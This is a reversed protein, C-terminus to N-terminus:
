KLIRTPNITKHILKNQGKLENFFYNILYASIFQSLITGYAAGIIGYKPILIYNFIVNAFSSVFAGYFHNKTLNESTQWKGKVIALGVFVGAWIHIMLVSGAQNYQGGYLLNVVWDSLFTMPLAIAIAMWVM